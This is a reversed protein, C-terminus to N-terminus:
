GDSIRGLMGGEGRFSLKFLFCLIWGVGDCMLMGMGIAM